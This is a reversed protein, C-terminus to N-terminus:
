EGAELAPLVTRLDEVAVAGERRVRPTDGTLDIITSPVGQECRGGDLYVAVSDGLQEEAEGVTDAPPGGTVNASSVALPGTEEILELAVPHQPMRVAVTGLSNGLDWALTPNHRVVLTLGGPWFEETLAEADKPLDEVIGALMAQSAVLVPVPMDRGRAKAALLATVAEPTFADAGVGYVTDTPLVVLEGRGIAATAERVGEAREDADECRYTRSM